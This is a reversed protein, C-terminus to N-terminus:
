ATSIQRLVPITPITQGVEIHVLARPTIGARTALEDQSLELDMRRERVAQGLRFALYTGSHKADAAEGDVELLFRRAFFLLLIAFVLLIDTNCRNNQVKPDIGSLAVLAFSSVGLILPDPAEDPGKMFFTYALEVAASVALGYGVLGLASDAINFQEHRQSIWRQAFVVIIGLKEEGPCPMLHESVDAVCRLTDTASKAVQAAEALNPPWPLRTRHQTRAPIPARGPKLGNNTVAATIGDAWVALRTLRM